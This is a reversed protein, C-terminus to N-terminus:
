TEGSDSEIDSAFIRMVDSVTLTGLYGGEVGEHTPDFTEEHPGEHLSEQM